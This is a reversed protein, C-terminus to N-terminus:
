EFLLRNLITNKMKTSSEAKLKKDELQTYALIFRRSRQNDKKKGKKRLSTKFPLPGVLAIAVRMSKSKLHGIHSFALWFSM